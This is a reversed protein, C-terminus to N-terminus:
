GICLGCGGMDCFVYGCVKGKVEGGRGRAELEDWDAVVVVDAVVPAFPGREAEAETKAAGVGTTGVSTGLGLLNLRYGRRPALMVGEERGRVWHPVTVPEAAVGEVGLAAEGELADLMYRVARRLNASGSVRNGVQSPNDHYTHTPQNISQNPRRTHTDPRAPPWAARVYVRVVM